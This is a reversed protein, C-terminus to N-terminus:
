TGHRLSFSPSQEHLATWYTLAQLLPPTFAHPQRDRLREDREVIPVAAFGSAGRSTMFAAALMALVAAAAFAGIGAVALDKLADFHFSLFGIPGASEPCSVGKAAVAICSVASEGQMGTQMKMAFAGFALLATVSVLLLAPFTRAM